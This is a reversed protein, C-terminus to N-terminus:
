KAKRGSQLGDAADAALHRPTDAGRDALDVLQPGLVGRQAGLVLSEGILVGARLREPASFSLHGREELEATRKSCWVTAARTM